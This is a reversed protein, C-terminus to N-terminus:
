TAPGSCQPQGTQFCGSCDALSCDALPRKRKPRYRSRCRLCRGTPSMPCRGASSDPTRCEESGSRRLYTCAANIVTSSRHGLAATTACTGSRRGCWRRTWGRTWKRHRRINSATLIPILAVDGIRPERQQRWIAVRPGSLRMRSRILLM